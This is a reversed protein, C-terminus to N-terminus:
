LDYVACAGSVKWYAPGVTTATALGGLHHIMDHVIAINVHSLAAPMPDM